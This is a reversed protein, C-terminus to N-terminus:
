RAVVSRPRDYVHSFYRLTLADSLGLALRKCARPISDDADTGEFLHGQGHSVERASRRVTEIEDAIEILNADPLLRVHKGLKAVQFMASRPNREDFVLLDVVAPWEPRRLHRARYTILSDSLDLLWELAGQEATAGEAEVADITTAVFTLRELHRGLSLFRWGDDRTMHAMELGAAAVLSLIIDDLVQLADNTDRPEPPRASVLAGLRGLVRWNDSSLRDRVSDAVRVTEDVNFRLSRREERDHIGDILAREIADMNDPAQGGPEDPLDDSLLLGQSACTRLLLSQFSSPRATTGAIQRLAARLLRASNESREAYRGLWFLTEAARSSTIRDATHAALARVREISPAGDTETASMVWTDKSTGGLQGSAIRGDRGAVRCLGGPMMRYEGRGDALLFVRLSIARNTLLGDEWVPAHSLADSARPASPVELPEDLLLRCAAPLVSGIEPTELVSLGFANAVLVRGARWAQVLGPVGLTSDARLELPDCYDDDVRRWIAHVPRLGSVTKLYVHDNRVTLDGGQVLPIGLERALYVHEFYTENFKGPTLLVASPAQDDVVPANRFLTDQLSDFFSTLPRTGLARAADPFLRTIITRNELAYGLGSPAQVRTGTVHWPGDPSRGLDFAAFHLWTGGPPHAAHCARLFGPHDFVLASPVIRTAILRQDGYLDAAAANLLRARQRLGRELADWDESTVLAPLVDLSWPRSPGHAESYVNYTVGNEHIQHAVHGVAHALEDASLDHAAAAFERWGPRLRGDGALLEDFRGDPVRYEAGPPSLPHPGHPQPGADQVQSSM